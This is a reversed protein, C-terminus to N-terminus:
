VLTNLEESNMMKNIAQDVSDAVSGGRGERVIVIDNIYVKLWTSYNCFLTPKYDLYAEVIEIEVSSEQLKKLTRTIRSESFELEMDSEDIIEIIM